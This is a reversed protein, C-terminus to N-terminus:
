AASPRKEASRATLREEELYGEIEDRNLHYFALAAHIEAPHLTPLKEAIEEM